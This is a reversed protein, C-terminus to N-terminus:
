AVRVVIVTSSVTKEFGSVPRSFSFPGAADDDKESKM